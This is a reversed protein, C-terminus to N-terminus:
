FLKILVWYENLYENSYKSYTGETREANSKFGTNESAYYFCEQPDWKEFYGLFIM